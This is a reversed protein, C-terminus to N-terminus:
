AAGKAQAIDMCANKIQNLGIPFLVLGVPLCVFQLVFAAIMMGPSTPRASIGRDRAYQNLDDCLGKVAVFYWYLNFFPIFMFGVAKGPPTRAHGDQILAWAQYLLILFCVASALSAALSFLYFLPLLFVALFGSPPAPPPPKVPKAGNKGMMEWTNLDSQYKNQADVSAGISSAASIGVVISVVMLLFIGVWSAIMSYLYGQFLKKFTAPRIVGTKNGAMEGGRPAAAPRPPASPMPQIAAGSSMPVAVINGCPCKGRQGAMTDPVTLRKGCQNCQVNIPM